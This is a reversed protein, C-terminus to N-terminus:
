KKALGEPELVLTWPYDKALKRFPSTAEFLFNDLKNLRLTRELLKENPTAYDKYRFVGWQSNHLGLNVVIVGDKEVIYGSAPYAPSNLLTIDACLRSYTQLDPMPVLLGIKERAVMYIERPVSICSMNSYTTFPYNILPLQRFPRLDEWCTPYHKWGGIIAVPKNIKLGYKKWLDQAVISMHLKDHEKVKWNYYYLTSTEHALGLAVITMLVATLLRRSSMQLLLMGSLAILPMFCYFTRLNAFSCQIVPFVFVSLAVGISALACYWKRKICWVISMAFFFCIAVLVCRLGFVFFANYVWNLVLGVFLSKVNVLFSHDGTFWYITDHAGGSKPIEIGILKAILMPGHNIVFWVIVSAFLIGAIQMWEMIVTKNRGKQDLVVIGMLGTLLLNVHAQYVSASIACLAVVLTWLYKNFQTRKLELWGLMALADCCFALTESPFAHQYISRNFFFPTSLWLAVGILSHGKNFGLRKFLLLILMGACTLLGLGVVLTWFPTFDHFVGAVLGQVIRHMFFYTLFVQLFDGKAANFDYATVPNLLLMGYVAFVVFTVALFQRWSTASLEVGVNRLFAKM